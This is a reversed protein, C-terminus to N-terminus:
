SYAKLAKRGISLQRMEAGIADRLGEIRDQVADVAQRAATLLTAIAAPDGAPRDALLADLAALCHGAATWDERTTAEALAALEFQARIVWSEFSTPIALTTM